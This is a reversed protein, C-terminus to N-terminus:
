RYPTIRGLVLYRGASYKTVVVEGSRPSVGTLREINQAHTVFVLNGPANHGNLFTQLEAVKEADPKVPDNFMSDLMLSPTVKGFAIRATDLCRCWRSSLVESIVVQRSRFAQGIVKADARGENSLNRQTACDTVKFDPPDGIGPETQAHRIFVVNGGEKLVSWVPEDSAPATLPTLLMALLVVRFVRFPASFFSM